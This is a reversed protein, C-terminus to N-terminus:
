GSIAAPITSNRRSRRWSRAAWRVGTRPGRRRRCTWVGDAEGTGAWSCEARVFGLSRKWRPRPTPPASPSARPWGAAAAAPGRRSGDAVQGRDARKIVQRAEGAGAAPQGAGEDAQPVAARRQQVPVRQAPEDVANAQQQPKTGTQVPAAADQEPRQQGRARVPRPQHAAATSKSVPMARM